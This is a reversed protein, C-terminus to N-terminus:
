EGGDGAGGARDEERRRAERAGLFRFVVYLGGSVLAIWTGTESMDERQWVLEGLLALAAGALVSLVLVMLIARYIGDQPLPPTERPM